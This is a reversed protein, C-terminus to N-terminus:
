PSQIHPSNDNLAHSWCFYLITFNSLTPHFSWSFYHYEPPPPHPDPINKSVWKVHLFDVYSKNLFLLLLFYNNLQSTKKLNIKWLFCFLFKILPRVFIQLQSLIKTIVTSYIIVIGKNCFYICGILLIIIVNELFTWPWLVHFYKKLM